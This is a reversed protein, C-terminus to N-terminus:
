LLDSTNASVSYSTTLITPEHSSTVYFRPGVVYSM